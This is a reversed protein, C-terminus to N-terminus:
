WQQYPMHVTIGDLKENMAIQCSLRSNDKKEASVCGLM